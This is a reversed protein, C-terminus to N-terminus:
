LPSKLPFFYKPVLLLAKARNRGSRRLLLLLPLTRVRGSEVPREQGNVSARQRQGTWAAARVIVSTPPVGLLHVPHGVRVGQGVGTRQPQAVQVSAIAYRPVRYMSPAVGGRERCKRRWLDSLDQRLVIEIGSRRSELASAYTAGTQYLADADPDETNTRIAYLHEPEHSMVWKIEDETVDRYLATPGFVLRVAYPQPWFLGGYHELPREDIYCPM